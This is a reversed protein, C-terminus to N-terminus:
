PTIVQVGAPPEFRFRDGPLEPNLRINTLEVTRLNESELEDIEIKRILYDATDIWVRASRYPSRELPRLAILFTSRGGARETGLYTAAYRRGPDSLFERHLDFRGEATALRTRNVAGADVSPFYVWLDTGDAVVRDGAPDTWRMDFRDSRAQCLEGRSDVTDDLLRVQIVQHFDACFADLSEHRESARELIATAEQAGAAGAGAAAGLCPAAVALLRAM